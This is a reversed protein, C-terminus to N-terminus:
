VRDDEGNKDNPRESESSESDLPLDGLVKRNNMLKVSLEWLEDMEQLRAKVANPSMDVKM